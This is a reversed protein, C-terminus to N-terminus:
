YKRRLSKQDSEDVFKLTVPKGIKVAVFTVLVDRDAVKGTAPVSDKTLELRYGDLKPTEVKYEEDQYADM